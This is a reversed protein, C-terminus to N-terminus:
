EEGNGCRKKRRSRFMQCMLSESGFTWKKEAPFSTVGSDRRWDMIIVWKKSMGYEELTDTQVIEKKMDEYYFLSTVTGKPAELLTIKGKPAELLTIKCKHSVRSWGHDAFVHASRHRSWKFDSLFNELNQQDCGLISLLIFEHNPPV